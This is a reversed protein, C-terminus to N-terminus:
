DRAVRRTQNLQDLFEHIKRTVYDIDNCMITLKDIPSLPIMTILHQKDPNADNLGFYLRAAKRAAMYKLRHEYPLTGAKKQLAEVPTTKFTGIMRPLAMNQM